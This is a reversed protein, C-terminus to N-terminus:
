VDVTRAAQMRLVIGRVFENSLLDWATLDVPALLDRFFARM